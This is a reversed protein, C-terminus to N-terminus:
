KETLLLCDSSIKTKILKRRIKDIGYDRSRQPVVTSKVVLKRWEKRNM